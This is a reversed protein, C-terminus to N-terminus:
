GVVQLEAEPILHTQTNGYFRVVCLTQGSRNFKGNDMKKRDAYSKVIELIAGGFMQRYVRSNGIYYAKKTEM